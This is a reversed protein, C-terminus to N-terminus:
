PYPNSPTHTPPIDPVYNYMLILLLYIIWRRFRAYRSTKSPPPTTTTSFLRGGDFVLMPARKRLHYPPPAPFCGVMTSFSCLQENEFTTPHHLHFTFFLFFLAVLLHTGGRLTAGGGEQTSISAGESANRAVSPNTTSSPCALSSSVGEARFRSRRLPNTAPLPM